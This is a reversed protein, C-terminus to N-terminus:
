FKYGVTVAYVIPDIEVTGIDTGDVSADTDIDAWRLDLNLFWNDNLMFDAGVQAALGFSDDLDLSTGALAGETSESFFLTWNVGVGLYPQIRGIAPTHWQVSLTPPLHKTSGVKGVGDIKIDHEFPTSALLEVGISDTVMYTANLYVAVGSDVQVNTGAPAGLVSSVDLNDSKPDVVGIGGRVLWDGAQRQMDAVAVNALLGTAAAVLIVRKM